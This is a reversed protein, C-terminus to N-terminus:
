FCHHLNMWFLDRPSLVSALLEDVVFVAFVDGCEHMQIPSLLQYVVMAEEHELARLRMHM